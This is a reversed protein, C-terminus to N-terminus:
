EEVKIRITKSDGVISDTQVSQEIWNQYPRASLLRKDDQLVVAKSAPLDSLVANEIAVGSAPLVFVLYLRDRRMQSLNRIATLTNSLNDTRFKEPASKRLFQEYGMAGTVTLEYEGPKIDAPIQLNMTYTHKAALYPEVVVSINVTQGAKVVTNSIALSWIHSIINKPQITAEVNISTITIEKYPNNLCLGIVAISEKLMAAGDDVSSVNEFVLPAFGDLGFTIKYSICHEPPLSGRMQVAASIATMLMIPSLMEQNVIRCNYTRIETDNYRNITIALPITKAKKGITGVVATATDATLAGKVELMEGVKFSRMLSAVVTDVKGTALPMDTAGTGLFAHGFAYVRDGVVDTVTGLATAKLDGDILPVVAVSGPEFNTNKALNADTNTGSMGSAAVFGMQSCVANLRGATELPLQSTSLVMPLASVGGPMAQASPKPQTFADAAAALDIPQAFNWASLNKSAIGQKEGAKLMEEIPTVGYLPDKNFPALMFALAGALRGDIYVPSGSCGAVPGTHVFRPDTGKVIIANRGPEFNRVVSVVELGFKEIKTGEYVTLCWAEAGPRVEDLGIYRSTDLAAASFAPAAFFLAALFFKGLNKYLSHVTYVVM